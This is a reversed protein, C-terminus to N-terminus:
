LVGASRLYVGLNYQLDYKTSLEYVAKVNEIVDEAELARQRETVACQICNDAKKQSRCEECRKM